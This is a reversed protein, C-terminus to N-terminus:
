LAFAPKNISPPFLFERPLVFALVFVLVKFCGVGLETLVPFRQFIGRQEDDTVDGLGFDVNTEGPVGFLNVFDRQGFERVRGFQVQQAPHEGIGSGELGVLRRFFYSLFDGFLECGDGFTQPLKFPRALILGVILRDAMAYGV